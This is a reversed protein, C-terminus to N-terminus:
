SLWTSMMTSAQLWSIARLEIFRLDCDSLQSRCAQWCCIMFALCCIMPGSPSGGDNQNVDVQKLLRTVQPM